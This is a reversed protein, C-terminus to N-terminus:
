VSNLNRNLTVEIYSIYHFELLGRQKYNRFLNGLLFCVYNLFFQVLYCDFQLDFRTNVRPKIENTVM